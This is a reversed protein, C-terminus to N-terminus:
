PLQDESAVSPDVPRSQNGPGAPVAKRVTLRRPKPAKGLGQDSPAAHEYGSITWVPIGDPPIVRQGHGALHQEAIWTSPDTLPEPQLVTAPLERHSM